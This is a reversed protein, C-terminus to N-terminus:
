LFFHGFIYWLKIKKSSTKFNNLKRRKNNTTSHIIPMSSRKPWCDRSMPCQSNAINIFFQGLILNFQVFCKFTIDETSICCWDIVDSSMITAVFKSWKETHQWTIGTYHSWYLASTFCILWGLMTPLAHAFHWRMPHFTNVFEFQLM